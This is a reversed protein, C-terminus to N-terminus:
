SPNQSNCRAYRFYGGTSSAFSATLDGTKRDLTYSGRDKEDFWSVSASSIKAPQTDVTGRGYDVVIQWSVGSRSNVCRLATTGNQAEGNSSAVASGVILGAIWAVPVSNRFM